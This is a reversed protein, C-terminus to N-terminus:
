GYRSHFGLGPNNDRAHVAFGARSLEQLLFLDRAKPGLLIVPPKERLCPTM